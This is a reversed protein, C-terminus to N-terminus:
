KSPEALAVWETTYSTGGSGSGYRVLTVKGEDALLKLAADFHGRDVHAVARRLSGRTTPSNVGLLKLLRRSVRYASDRSTESPRGRPVDVVASPDRVPTLVIVGGPGSEALYMLPPVEGAPAGTLMRPLLRVAGRSNVAILM